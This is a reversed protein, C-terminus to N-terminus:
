QVKRMTLKKINGHFDREVVEIDMGTWDKPAKGEPVNVTIVPAEQRVEMIKSTAAEVMRGTEQLTKTVAELLGKEPGEQGGEEKVMPRWKLGKPLKGEKALGKVDDSTLERPM